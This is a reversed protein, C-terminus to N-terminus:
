RSVTTRQGTMFAVLEDRRPLTEYDGKGCVAMAGLACARRVAAETDLHDLLGSLLGAAFADGAGVEDVLAVEFGNVYGRSDATRYYAGQPGLKVVVLKAGRSMFSDAIDEPTSLGTLTRGEDIGPLVIDAYSAIELLTPVAEDISWLKYRLNPDFSIQIGKCRAEKLLAAVTKRNQASLAPTVGTVHFFRAAHLLSQDIDTHRIESAASHKRYYQVNTGHLRTHEKFFVGTSRSEDIGVGSVDVGEGRLTKLVYRGFGDSGVKSLWSVQHGLRALAIAVNSEAGAVHKTFTVAQELSDGDDPTLLVMSEGITVVDM